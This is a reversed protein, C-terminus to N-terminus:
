GLVRVLGRFLAKLYMSGQERERKFCNLQHNDQTIKSPYKWWADKLLITIQHEILYRQDAIDFFSM